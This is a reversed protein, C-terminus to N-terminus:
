NTPPAPQATKTDDSEDSNVVGACGKFSFFKVEGGKDGLRDFGNTTENM